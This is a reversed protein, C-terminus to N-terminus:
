LLLQFLRRLQQKTPIGMLLLLFKPTLHMLLEVAARSSGDVPASM